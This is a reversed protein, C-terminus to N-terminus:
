CTNAIVEHAVVGAGGGVAGEARITRIAAGRVGTRSAVATRLYNTHKTVLKVSKHFLCLFNFCIPPPFHFFSFLFHIGMRVIGDGPWMGVGSHLAPSM